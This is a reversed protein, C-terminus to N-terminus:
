AKYCWINRGHKKINKGVKWPMKRLYLHLIIVIYMRRKGDMLFYIGEFAHAAQLICFQKQKTSPHSVNDRSYLYRVPVMINVKPLATLQLCLFRIQQQRYMCIMEKNFTGNRKAFEIICQLGRVGM